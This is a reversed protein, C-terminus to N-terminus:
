RTGIVKILRSCMIDIENNRLHQPNLWIENKNEYEKKLFYSPSTIITQVSKDPLTKLVNLTEGCIIKNEVDKTSYKKKKKLHHLIM